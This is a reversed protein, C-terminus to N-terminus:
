KIDEYLKIIEDRSLAKGYLRAIAIEGNLPNSVRDNNFDDYSTDGGIGIWQYAELPFGFNGSVAMEGAKQGNVYVMIKGAAKSYSAVVHYFPGTTVYASSYLSKYNGGLHIWFIVQGEQRTHSLGTGGAEQGCFSNAQGSLTNTKYLLEMSYANSFATKVATSTHYDIKYYCTNSGTFQAVYKNYTSSLYTQPKIAGATIPLHTDSADSANGNADFVVDLLDAVPKPVNPDPTYTPTTFVDSLIPASTNNYSDVAKVRAKFTTGDPIGSFNATISSPMDTKLYYGSNKKATTVVYDNEVKVIDIIYNRVVENDTAQPFTVSCTNDTVNSIIPKTTGSFSPAPLGNRNTYTFNSGDFPAEVIWKPTIEINRYTDWRSIEIQNSLVSVILGETVTNNTVRGADDVGAETMAMYTTNGDNISTFYNQHIARPDSIPYHSHGSFVIAQPYQQLISSLATGGSETTEAGYCTGLAPIHMFVFIPKGPYTDAAQALKKTLFAKAENNYDNNGLGNLSITIFPYDKIIIYQHLPQQLKELYLATANTALQYSPTFYEHNGMMFYTAIGEPIIDPNTFVSVCQDYHSAVACEVIDGVVFLADVPEKSILCQIAKTVKATESTPGQNNGFHTDSFVAVRPLPDPNPIPRGRRKLTLTRSQTTVNAYTGNPKISWSIAAEENEAFGFAALRADMGAASLVFPNGTANIEQANETGDSTFVLMYDAVGELETWEFSVNEVESLDYRSDNPPAVLVVMGEVRPDIVPENHQEESNACGLIIGCAIILLKNKM